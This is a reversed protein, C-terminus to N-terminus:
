LVNSELEAEKIYFHFHKMLEPMDYQYICDKGFLNRCQLQVWLLCTDCDVMGSHRKWIVMPGNDSKVIKWKESDHYIDKSKLKECISCNDTVAEVVAVAKDVDRGEAPAPTQIGTEVM